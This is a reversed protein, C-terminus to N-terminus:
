LASLGGPVPRGESDYGYYQDTSIGLADAERQVQENLQDMRGGEGFMAEDKREDSKARKAALAAQDSLYESVLTGDEGGFDEYVDQVEQDRLQSFLSSIKDNGSEGSLGDIGLVDSNVREGDKYFKVGNGSRVAVVNDYEPGLDYEFAKKDTYKIGTLDSTQNKYRQSPELDLDRAEDIAAKLQDTTQEPAPAPAAAAPFLSATQDLQSQMDAFQQANTDSLGLNTFTDLTSGTDAVPAVVDEATSTGAPTGTFGSTIGFSRGTPSLLEGEATQTWGKAALIEAAGQSYQRAM